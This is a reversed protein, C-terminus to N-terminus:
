PGVVLTLRSDLTDAAARLALVSTKTACFHYSKKFSVESSLTEDHTKSLSTTKKNHFAITEVRRFNHIKHPAFNSWTPKSNTSTPVFLPRMLKSGRPGDFVCVGIILMFGWAIKFRCADISTFVFSLHLHTKPPVM